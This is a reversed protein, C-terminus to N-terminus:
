AGDATPADCHEVVVAAGAHEVFAYKRKGAKDISVDSTPSVAVYGRRIASQFIGGMLEFV